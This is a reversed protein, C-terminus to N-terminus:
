AGPDRGLAEGSEVDFLHVRRPDIRLSLDAGPELRRRPDVAVVLQARPREADLDRALEALRAGGPPADYPVYAYQGNGLWEVVDVRARFTADTSAPSEGARAPDEFVDARLGAVLESREGV